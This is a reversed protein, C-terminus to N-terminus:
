SKTMFRLKVKGDGLSARHNEYKTNCQHDMVRLMENDEELDM